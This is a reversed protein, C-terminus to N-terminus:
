LCGGTRALHEFALDTSEMELEGDPDGDFPLDDFGSMDDGLCDDNEFDDNEFDDNECEDEGCCNDMDDIGIIHSM